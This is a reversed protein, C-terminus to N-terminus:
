RKLQLRLPEIKVNTHGCSELIKKERKAAKMSDFCDMDIQFVGNMYTNFTLIYVKIYRGEIPKNIVNSM